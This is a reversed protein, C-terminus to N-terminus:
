MNHGDQNESVYLIFQYKQLSQKENITPSGSLYKNVTHYARNWFSQWEQITEMRNPEITCHFPM